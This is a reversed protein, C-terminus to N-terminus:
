QFQKKYDLFLPKNNKISNMGKKYRYIGYTMHNKGKEKQSIKSLKSSKLVIWKKASQM